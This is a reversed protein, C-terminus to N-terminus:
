EHHHKVVVRRITRLKSGLEREAVKLDHHSQLNMWFEATTGFFRGFRLATDATIARRELCIDSVRSEPLGTEKALRYQSIEMPVLFEERLIEGPHIITTKKVM